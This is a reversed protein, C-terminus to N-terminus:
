NVQRRVKLYFWSVQVPATLIYAGWPPVEMDPARPAKSRAEVKSAFNPTLDGFLLFFTPLEPVVLPLFQSIIGPFM